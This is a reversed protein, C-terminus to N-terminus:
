SEEGRCEFSPCCAEPDAVNVLERGIPCDHPRERCVVGACTEPRRYNLRAAACAQYDHLTSNRVPGIRDSPVAFLDFECLVQGAATGSCARRVPFHVRNRVCECTPRMALTVLGLFEDAARPRERALKVEAACSNSDVAAIESPSAGRLRHRLEGEFKDPYRAKLGFFSDHGPYKKEGCSCEVAFRGSEDRELSCHSLCASTRHIPPAAGGAVPSAAWFLGLAFGWMRSTKAM